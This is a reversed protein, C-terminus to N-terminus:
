EEGRGCRRMLEETDADIIARSRAHLARAIQENMTCMGPLFVIDISFVRIMHYLPLLIDGLLSVM